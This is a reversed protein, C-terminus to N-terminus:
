KAKIMEVLKQHHLPLKRKKIWTLSITSRITPILDVLRCQSNILMAAPRRMLMALGVGRSVADLLNEAHHSSFRVDPEFGADKCLDTCLKYMLADKGIMLLHQDKLESISVAERGAFPHNGPVALCLTDETFPITEFDDPLAGQNRIFAFDLKGDQLMPLLLFPDGEEVVLEASKNNNQYEHLLDNIRYARMMPISGITIKNSQEHHDSAFVRTCEDDIRVLERAYPLFLKGHRNLAVKRTTREFLAAGIESELAKIHRSLSSTTIFLRESTEFFSETEVLSLFERVHQIEM